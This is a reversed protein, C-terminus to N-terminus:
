TDAALKMLAQKLRYVQTAHSVNLEDLSANLKDIKEMQSESLGSVEHVHHEQAEKILRAAEAKAGLLIKDATIKADSVLKGATKQATILTDGIEGKADGAANVNTMLRANETQLRDLEKLLAEYEDAVKNLHVGVKNANYYKQKVLDCDVTTIQDRTLAM